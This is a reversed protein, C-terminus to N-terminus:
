KITSLLGDVCCVYTGNPGTWTVMQGNLPCTWALRYYHKPDRARPMPRPPAQVQGQLAGSGAGLALVQRQLARSGAGPALVQGQLAGSGAGPALVQEQTTFARMRM